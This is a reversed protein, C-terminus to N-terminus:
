SEFPQALDPNINALGKAREGKSIFSLANKSFSATQM